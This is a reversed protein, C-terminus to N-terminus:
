VEGLLGPKYSAFRERVRCFVLLRTRLDVFRVGFLNWTTQRRFCTPLVSRLICRLVNRLICRLVNRLVFWLFIGCFDRRFLACPLVFSRLSATCRALHCISFLLVRIIYTECNTVVSSRNRVLYKDVVFFRCPCRIHRIGIPLSVPISYHPPSGINVTVYHWQERHHRGFRKARSSSLRKIKSTGDIIKASSEREGDRPM